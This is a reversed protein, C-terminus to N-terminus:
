VPARPSLQCNRSSILSVSYSHTKSIFHFLVFHFFSVGLRSGLQLRISQYRSNRRHLSSFLLSLINIIIITFLYVIFLEKEFNVHMPIPVFCWVINMGEEMVHSINWRPRTGTMTVHLNECLWYEIRDGHYYYFSTHM